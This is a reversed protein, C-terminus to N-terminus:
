IKVFMNAGGYKGISSLVMGNKTTSGKLALIRVVEMFLFNHGECGGRVEVDLSVWLRTWYM